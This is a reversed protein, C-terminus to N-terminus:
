GIFRETATSIVDIYLVASFFSSSLVSSSFISILVVVNYQAIAM